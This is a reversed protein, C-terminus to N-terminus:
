NEQYGVRTFTVTMFPPLSTSPIDVLEGIVEQPETPDNTISLEAGEETGADLAVTQLTFEERWRGNDLLNVGEIAVFWDPSPAIMSVLSVIPNDRSVDIKQVLQDQHEMRDLIFYESIRGLELHAELEDKIERTLGTEAMEEMGPSALEGLVFVADPRSSVWIVPDSFHANSVFYGEHTENTWNTQMTVEYVADDSGFLGFPDSNDSNDVVVESEERNQVNQVYDFARQKRDENQYWLGVFVVTAGVVVMSGM